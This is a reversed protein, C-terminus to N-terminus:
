EKLNKVFASPSISFQKQFSTAFYSPSSFGVMYAVENIRYKQSSLMEAAQKLRSLRIYENINLGTNAKVKRYLTSKSTGILSTLTEISLDQEAMHKMVIGHLREMFEEDIKSSNLSNFHTLPSDTFQRYSIERNRFLNTINARLLEIPFPKEIYGDAGVELTQMRTEMGVAATLLLVPIHSYEMNTKVYNCLQCGDLVPMMVDSVVLDIREQQLKEVADQGNAATIVNYDDSLEGALYGRMEADDEVLLLTHLSNDLEAASDDQVAPASAHPTMVVPMPQHVPLELVFSNCSIMATDLYLKGHHMVALARAFPLGLGTGKSKRADGVQYFTEFIRESDRTPILAGNSDVRLIATHGDASPRLSLDIRDRCYKVANSLLNSVIKEVADRACMVEFPQEPIDETLTIRQDAALQEFYHCSKRVIACLDEKLFIPQMENQEMKRLDLLQNTLTLLRDTNAQITLMEKEARPTYEKEAILKDLPMKILTLPTRIEHTINTFFNIKADYIEKKKRIELSNRHRDQERRRRLETQYVALGALSALLLLYLIRATNSLLPPALIEFDLGASSGPGDTGLISVDFRYRGPRLGSINAQNDTTTTSIIQRGGRKLSYVYTVQQMISYMPAAYSISLLSADRSKVRVRETKLTSRGDEHLPTIRGAGRAEIHTIYVPYELIDKKMKSPSLAVMGNTNGLYLRGSRTSLVAGYCFQSGLIRQRDFIFDQIDLTNGDIRAIGRTTSIWIIGEEDEAAACTVNTRLGEDRTIAHLRLASLDPDPDSYCLGGGETTIWIRHRSDEFFSTIRDATLGSGHGTATLHSLLRGDADYCFLGNGYTGIRNRSDQFLTHIFAPCDPDAPLFRDSGPDYAFLGKMTGTFLRGDATLLGTGTSYGPIDYHKRVARRRLDFRYVGKGFTHIWMDNGDMTLDQMNLDPVIEYNIGRSGDAGFCNLGGDETCFWINGEPDSEISRVITGKMSRPSPNQYYLRFEDANDEWFNLGKYYTGVWVNGSKDKALSTIYNASLSHPEYEDHLLSSVDGSEQHKIFLGDNTGIWYEGPRRELLHRIERGGSSFVPTSRLTSTDILLVDGDSTSALLRGNSAPLIQSLSRPFDMRDFRDRLKDYLHLSGDSLIVWLADYADIAIRSPTSGEFPYETTAGSTKDYRYLCDGTYWIGGKLDPVLDFTLSRGMRDLSGMRGSLPDYWGIGVPTAYWIMRDEDEKIVMAALNTLKDPTTDTMLQFDYSDYRCLGDRTGVWLFGYSDQFTCHITNSPLGEYTTFHVFYYYSAARIPASVLSLLLFPILLRKM